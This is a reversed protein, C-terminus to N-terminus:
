IKWLHREALGIRGVRKVVVLQVIVGTAATTVCRWFTAFVSTASFEFGFGVTGGHSETTQIFIVRLGQNLFQKQRKFIPTKFNALGM